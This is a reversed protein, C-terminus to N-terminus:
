NINLDKDLRRVSKRREKEAVFDKINKRPYGM